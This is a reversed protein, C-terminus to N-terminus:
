KFIMVQPSALLVPEHRLQMFAALSPGVQRWAREGVVGRIAGLMSERAVEPSAVGPTRVFGGLSDEIVEGFSRPGPYDMVDYEDLDLKIALDGIAADLGGIEDAMKLTLAKDGTFLRGEATKSLDIGKRGAAVRAAFQDYTEKMKAAVEAKDAASWPELSSFMTARPGRGRGVVGVKLKEYLGAMTIKGGVVGISGVISSPNVYIRDAGVAIYYGGSAAMSGVSVWVPKKEAVRRVGRWIVESATASGGPSDIRLIVGKIEDENRVKELAKRLTRSGVSGAGSFGGASSDGDTIAGDVHVIAITPGDPEHEPEKGLKSLLAFPNSVDLAAEKGELLNDTWEIPGDYAKELHATLDPLDIPDDLLGAKAADQVDGMWLSEMAKDLREDSLERGAKIPRRLNAYLSDLLQNINQEWEPSPASRAMQESAGKYAGIQVYDARLGAWGLTDALFMEEMYLGPFSVPGGAQGLAEDAYSALMIEMPGYAEAFVHVKKGAARVRKIAVGLEEVQTVSLDADRLRIVVGKLKDDEACGDVTAILRRMTVVDGDGFLWALEPARELPTDELEILGIRSPEAAAAIGGVGGVGALVAAVAGIGITWARMSGEEGASAPTCVTHTTRWQNAAPPAANGAEM